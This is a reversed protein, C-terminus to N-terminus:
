RATRATSFFCRPLMQLIDDAINGPAARAGDRGGGSEVTRRRWDIEGSVMLLGDDMSVLMGARETVAASAERTEASAIDRRAARLLRENRQMDVRVHTCDIVQGASDIGALAAAVALKDAFSDFEGSLMVDDAVATVVINAGLQSGAHRLEALIAQQLPHDHTM